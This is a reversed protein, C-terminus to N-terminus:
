TKRIMMISKAVPSIGGWFPKHKGSKTLDCATCSYYWWSGGRLLACNGSYTDNDQDLTTFKMGNHRRLQNAATGSFNDVTLKYKSGADGISFTKYLAYKKNGSSDVLDVRLEYKGSSTLIHTYKNGFWFEGNINGFGNECELWKRHFNVNGGNRKHIVTWGGGDTTMDCYAQVSNVGGPYIKYVGDKLKKKTKRKIDTCDKYKAIPPSCIGKTDQKLLGLIRRTEKEGKSEEIIWKIEKRLQTNLKVVDKYVDINELITQTKKKLKEVTLRQNGDICTDQLERMIKDIRMDNESSERDNRIDRVM